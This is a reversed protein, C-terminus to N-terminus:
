VVKFEQKSFQLLVHKTQGTWGKYHLKNM